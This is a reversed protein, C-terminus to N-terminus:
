LKQEARTHVERTPDEQGQPLEKGEERQPVEDGAGNSDPDITLDNGDEKDDLLEDKFEEVQNRAESLFRGLDRAMSVAKGPGFVVLMLLVIIVLEQPGIGFV